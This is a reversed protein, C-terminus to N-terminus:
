SLVVTATHTMTAHSTPQVASPAHRMDFRSAYTGDYFENHRRGGIFPM